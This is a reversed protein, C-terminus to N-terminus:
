APSAPRPEGAHAGGLSEVAAEFVEHLGTDWRVYQRAPGFFAADAARHHASATFAHPSGQLTGSVHSAASLSNPRGVPWTGLEATSGGHHLGSTSGARGWAGILAQSVNGPEEAAM